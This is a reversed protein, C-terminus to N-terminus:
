DIQLSCNVIFVRHGWSKEVGCAEQREEDLGENRNDKRDLIDGTPPTNSVMKGRVEIMDQFKSKSMKYRSTLQALENAEENKNRPIHRINM